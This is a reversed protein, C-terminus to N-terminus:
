LRGRPSILSAGGTASSALQNRPLTGTKVVLPLSFRSIRRHTFFTGGFPASSTDNRAAAPPTAIRRKMDYYVM